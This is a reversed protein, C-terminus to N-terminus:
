FLNSYHDMLNFSQNMIKLGVQTLSADPKNDIWMIQAKVNHEGIKIDLIDGLPIPTDNIIKIGLGKESVNVISVKLNQGRYFFAFPIEKNFRYARRKETGYKGSFILGCYPCPRFAEVSSSYSDQNCRPCALRLILVGGASYESLTISVFNLKSIIM